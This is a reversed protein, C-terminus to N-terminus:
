GTWDVFGCRVPHGLLFPCAYAVERLIHIYYSTDTSSTGEGSSHVNVFNFQNSSVIITIRFSM